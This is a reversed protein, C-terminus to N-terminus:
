INISNMNHEPLDNHNTFAAFHPVGSGEKVIKWLQLSHNDKNILKYRDLIITSRLGVVIGFFEIM